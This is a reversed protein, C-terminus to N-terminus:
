TMDSETVDHVAARWVERDKVSNACVQTWQTLRAQNFQQPVSVDSTCCLCPGQPLFFCETIDSEVSQLGGPEETWPIRWALINSLTAMGEDLLRDM